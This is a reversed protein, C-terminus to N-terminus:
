LAALARATAEDTVLGKLRGSRLVSAIAPVKSPGGTIAVIRTGEPGDVGAAITRATLATEVLAGDADFFHGLIEGM